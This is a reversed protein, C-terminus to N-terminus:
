KIEQLSTALAGNNLVLKGDYSVGKIKTATQLAQTSLGFISAIESEENSAQIIDPAESSGLSESRTVPSPHVTSLYTEFETASLKDALQSCAERAAPPVRGQAVATNLATTKRAAENMALQTKLAANEARMADLEAQNPEMTTVESASVEISDACAPENIRDILGMTLAEAANWTRGSAWEAVTVDTQDRGMAVDRKFQAAISDVQEQLHACQADTIPAGDIGIGKLPGSRFVKVEIGHDAHLQSTDPIAIFAGISGIDSGAEASISRAQSALWYAASCAEGTVVANIPKGAGRILTAVPELGAVHGGPSDINLQISDVDPNRIAARIEAGIERYGSVQLGMEKWARLIPNLKPVLMGDIQIHAVRGVVSTEATEGVAYEAGSDILIQIHGLFESVSEDTACYLSGLLQSWVYKQLWSFIM